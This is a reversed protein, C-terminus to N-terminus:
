ESKEKCKKGREKYWLVLEDSYDNEIVGSSWLAEKFVKADKENRMKWFTMFQEMTVSCSMGMRWLARGSYAIPMTRVRQLRAGNRRVVEKNFKQDLYNEVKMEKRTKFLPTHMQYEINTWKFIIRPSTTYQNPIKAFLEYWDERSDVGGICFMQLTKKELEARRFAELLQEDTFFKGHKKRSEETAFELGLRIITCNPTEKAALYSTLMLDKVTERVSLTGEEENSILKLSDKVRQKALRTRKEDNHQPKNLWSTMCFSCKNKCGVGGLYYFIRKKVQVIPCKEWEILTSARVSRETGTYTFPAERIEHLSKLRFFEFGQGISVIDCFLKLVKFFPSVAGGVIIVKGKYKERAKMLMQIETIDCMSVLIADSDEPSTLEHGNRVILQKLLAETYQVADEVKNTILHYKM